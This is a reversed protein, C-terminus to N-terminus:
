DIWYIMYLYTNNHPFLVHNTWRRSHHCRNLKELLQLSIVVFWYSVTQFHYIGGWFFHCTPFQQYDTPIPHGVNWVSGYPHSTVKQHRKFKGVDVHQAGMVWCEMLEDHDHCFSQALPRQFKVSGSSLSLWPSWHTYHDTDLTTSHQLSLNINKRFICPYECVWALTKCQKAPKALNLQVNMGWFITFCRPFNSEMWCLRIELRRRKRADYVRCMWWGTRHPDSSTDCGMGELQLWVHSSFGMYGPAGMAQGRLNGLKGHQSMTTSESSNELARRGWPSHPHAVSPDNFAVWEVREQNSLGIFYISAHHYMHAWPYPCCNLKQVLQCSLSNNLEKEFGNRSPRKSRALHRQCWIFTALTIANFETMLWPELFVCRSRHLCLGKKRAMGGWSEAFEWSRRISGHLQPGGRFTLVLLATAGGTLIPVHLRRQPGKSSAWSRRQACSFRAVEHLGEKPRFLTVDWTSRELLWSITWKGKGVMGKFYYVELEAGKAVAKEINEMWKTWWAGWGMCPFVGAVARLAKRWHSQTMTASTSQVRRCFSWQLASMAGAVEKSWLIGLPSTSGLGHPLVLAGEKLCRAVSFSPGNPRTASLVSAIPPDRGIRLIAPDQGFLHFDFRLLMYGLCWRVGGSAQMSTVFLQQLWAFSFWPFGCWPGLEALFRATAFHSAAQSALHQTRCLNRRLLWVHLLVDVDGGLEVDICLGLGTAGCLRLACAAGLFAARLIRPDAFSCVM